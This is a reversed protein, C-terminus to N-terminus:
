NIKISWANLTGVDQNYHDQVRLQWTGKVSGSLNVTYSEVVNDASDSGNYNKLQYQAGTPSTLVLSIDGRYTHSINVNVTATGSTTSNDVELTSTM